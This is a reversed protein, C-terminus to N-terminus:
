RSQDVAISRMIKIMELILEREPNMEAYGYYCKRTRVMEPLICYVVERQQEPQLFRVLEENGLM